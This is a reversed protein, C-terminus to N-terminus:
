EVAGVPFSDIRLILGDDSALWAGVSEESNEFNHVVKHSGAQQRHVIVRDDPKHIL